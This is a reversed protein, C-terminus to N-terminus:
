QIIKVAVQESIEVYGIYEYKLHYKTIFEQFARFEGDQWGPYNFYEDFVLITGEVIQERLGELVCSTSSYLDCDIHILSCVEPHQQLFPPLTEAFLGKVLSVNEEVDPLKEIKFCGKEYGSRWTEPLGEFCDFGYISKNPLLKAIHNITRGSYVGFELYQGKIKSESIAYTLIDLSVNFAKVKSMNRLVYEATQVKAIEYIQKHINQNPEWDNRYIKENTHTVLKQIDELLLLEKQMFDKIILIERQIDPLTEKSSKNKTQKDFMNM